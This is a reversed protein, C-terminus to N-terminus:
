MMSGAVILLIIAVTAALGLRTARRRWSRAPRSLKRGIMLQWRLDPTVPVARLKASVGADFAREAEFWRALAPDDRVRALSEAFQPDRADQGGPRYAGLLFQADDFNVLTAV